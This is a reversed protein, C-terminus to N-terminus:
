RERYGEAQRYTRIYGQRYAEAYHERYEHKDGFSRRYGDDADDYRGRPNPNFRKGRYLDERAVTSGDRFGFERAVHVAQRYDDRDGDHYRYDDDDRDYYRYDQAALSAATGAVLGLLLAAVKLKQQM